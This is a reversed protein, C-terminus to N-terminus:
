AYDCVKFVEKREKSCRIGEWRLSIKESGLSLLFNKVENRGCNRVLDVRKFLM